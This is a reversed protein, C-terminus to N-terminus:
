GNRLDDLASLTEEIPTEPDPRHIQYLDIYDIGLRRLSGEVADFIHKRSNGEDWAPSGMRGHFKTAVVLEDRRGGKERAVSKSRLSTTASAPGNISQSTASVLSVTWNPRMSLPSMTHKALRWDGVWCRDSIIADSLWVTRSRLWRARASRTSRPSTWAWPTVVEVPRMTPTPSWMTARRLSRVSDVPCPHTLFPSWQVTVAVLLSPAIV